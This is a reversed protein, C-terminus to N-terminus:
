ETAAEITSVQRSIKRAKEEDAGFELLKKYINETNEKQKKKKQEADDVLYIKPSNNGAELMEMENNAPREIAPEFNKFFDQPGPNKQQPVIVPYNQVLINPPPRYPEHIKKIPEQSKPFLAPNPQKNLDPAKQLRVPESARPLLDPDPPGYLVPESLRPALHPDSSRPSTLPPPAKPFVVHPEPNRLPEPPRFFAQKPSAMPNNQHFGYPLDPLDFDQAEPMEVQSNNKALKQPPNNIKKLPPQIQQPNNQPPDNIKNLPPPIQQPDNKQEFIKPQVNQPINQPLNNPPSADLKQPEKRAPRKKIPAPAIKTRM